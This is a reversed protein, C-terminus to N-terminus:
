QQTEFGEEEFGDDAFMEQMKQRATDERSKVLETASMGMLKDQFDDELVFEKAEKDLQHIGQVSIPVEFYLNFGEKNLKKRSTGPIIQECIVEEFLVPKGLAACIKTFISIGERAFSWRNYRVQLVDPWSLSVIEFKDAPGADRTLVDIVHFIDLARKFRVDLKKERKYVEMDYRDVLAKRVISSYSDDTNDAEEMVKEWLEPPCLFNRQILNDSQM